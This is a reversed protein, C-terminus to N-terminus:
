TMWVNITNKLRIRGLSTFEEVSDVWVQLNSNYESFEDSLVFNRDSSLVLSCQLQVSHLYHGSHTVSFCVIM